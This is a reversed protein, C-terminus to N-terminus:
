VLLWLVSTNSRGSLFYNKYVSFLLIIDQLISIFNLNMSWWIM